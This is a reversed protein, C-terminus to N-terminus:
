KREIHKVTLHCMTPQALLLAVAQHQLKNQETGDMVTHEHNLFSETMRVHYIIWKTFYNEQSDCRTQAPTHLASPPPTQFVM